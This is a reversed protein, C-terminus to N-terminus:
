SPPSTSSTTRTFSRIGSSPTAPTSGTARSCCSTSPAARTTLTPATARISSSSGGTRCSSSTRTPARPGPSHVRRVRARDVRVQDRQLQRPQHVLGAGGYRRHGPLRRRLRAGARIRLDPGRAARRSWRPQRRDNRRAGRVLRPRGRQRVAIRLASKPGPLRRGASQLQRLRQRRGPLLVCLWNWREVAAGAPRDGGAIARGRETRAPRRASRNRRRPLARRDPDRRRHARANASGGGGLRLLAGARRGGPDSPNAGTQIAAIDERHLNGHSPNVIVLQYEHAIAVTADSWTGYNALYHDIQRAKAHLGTPPTPPGNSAASGGCSSSILLLAGAGADM